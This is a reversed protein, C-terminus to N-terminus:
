DLCEVIKGRKFIINGNEDQLQVTTVTGTEFIPGTVIGVTGDALQYTHQDDM